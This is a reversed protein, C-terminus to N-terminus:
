PEDTSRTLLKPVSHWSLCQNSAQLSPRVFFGTQLWYDSPGTVLHNLTALTELLQMRIMQIEPVPPLTTPGDVKSTLEPFSIAELQKALNKSLEGVASGLSELTKQSAAM